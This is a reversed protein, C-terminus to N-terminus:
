ALPHADQDIGDGLLHAFNNSQTPTINRGMPKPNSEYLCEPPVEEM